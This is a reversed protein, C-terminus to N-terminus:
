AVVGAQRLEAIRDPSYGAEALIEDTHQGLTPPPRRISAPQASLKLPSGLVKIPGAAPHEMEVVM